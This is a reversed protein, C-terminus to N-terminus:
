ESFYNERYFKIIKELTRNTIDIDENTVDTYKVWESAIKLDYECHFLNVKRGMDTLYLSCVRKDNKDEVKEVLGKSVLKDIMVSTAGKTRMMLRSLEKQNIGERKAIMKLTHVENSYLIHDSGYRHPKKGLSDTMMGVEFFNDSLQTINNFNDM